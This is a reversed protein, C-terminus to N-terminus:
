LKVSHLVDIIQELDDQGMNQHIPLTFSRVAMRILFAAGLGRTFEAFAQEFEATADVTTHLATEFADCADSQGWYERIDFAIGM